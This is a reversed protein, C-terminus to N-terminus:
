PAYCATTGDVLRCTTFSFNGPASVALIHGGKSRARVLWQWNTINSDIVFANCALWTYNAQTVVVDLAPFSGNHQVVLEYSAVHTLFKPDSTTAVM